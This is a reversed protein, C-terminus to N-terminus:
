PRVYVVKVGTTDAGPSVYGVAGPESRVFALVEADGAKELPPVDRGSFIVQNWYAKVANLSKLHIALAFREQLVQAAPEVPQVPRGEPWRLSKKLFLRSVERASLESVPNDRNVVVKFDEAAAPSAAALALSALLALAAPRM